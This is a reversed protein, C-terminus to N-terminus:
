QRVIIRNEVNKVGPVQHAIQEATDSQRIKKVYGSLVVANENSEVHVKGIVPDESRMLADQVSQELSVGSPYPTFMNGVSSGTQCGTLLLALGVVLGSLRIKQM